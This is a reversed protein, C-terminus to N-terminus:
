SLRRQGSHGAQLNLGISNALAQASATRITGGKKVKSLDPFERKIYATLADMTILANKGADTPAAGARPKNQQALINLRENLMTGIRRAAGDANKVGPMEHWHARGLKRVVAVLYKHMEITTVRASERGVLKMCWGKEQYNWSRIAECGFYLACGRVLRFDWDPAVNGKRQATSQQGMADDEFADADIQYREMLERAKAFFAEAEAENDTGAAKALLAKIKTAISKDSM